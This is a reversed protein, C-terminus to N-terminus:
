FCSEDHDGFLMLLSKRTKFVDSYFEVAERCNGYLNIYAQVAM